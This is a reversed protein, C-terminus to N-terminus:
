ISRGVPLIVTVSTGKGPSKSNSFHIDGRHQRVIEHAISLGLGSGNGDSKKYDAVRSIEEGDDTAEEYLIYFAIRDIAEVFNTKSGNGNGLHDRRHAKVFLDILGGKEHLSDRANLLLNVLLQVIRQHDCILPPLEETVKVKVQVGCEDRFQREVLMMVDRLIAEVDTNVMQNSDLTGYGQLMTVIQDARFANREILSLYHQVVDDDTPDNHQQLEHRLSISATSVISLLNALEQAIGTTLMGIGALRQVNEMEITHKELNLNNELTALQDSHADTTKTM